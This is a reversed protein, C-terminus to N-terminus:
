PTVARVDVVRSVLWSYRILAILVIQQANTQMFASAMHTGNNSRVILGTFGRAVNGVDMAIDKHSRIDKLLFVSRYTHPTLHLSM